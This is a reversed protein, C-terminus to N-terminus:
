ACNADGIASISFTVSFWVDETWGSATAALVDLGDLRGVDLRREDWRADVTWVRVNSTRFM